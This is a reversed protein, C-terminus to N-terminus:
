GRGDLPSCYDLVDLISGTIKPGCHRYLVAESVHKL